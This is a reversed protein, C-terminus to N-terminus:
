FVIYCIDDVESFKPNGVLNKIMKLSCEGVAKGKGGHDIYLFTSYTGTKARVAIGVDGLGVNGHTELEGSLATFALTEADFPHGNANALSTMSQYWVTQGARFVPFNQDADKLFDRNDINGTAAKDVGVWVFTNDDGKEHFPNIGKKTVKDTKG